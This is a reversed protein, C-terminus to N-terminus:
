ESYTHNLNITIIRSLKANKLFNGDVKIQFKSMEFRGCITFNMCTMM